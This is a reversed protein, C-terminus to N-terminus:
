SKILDLALQALESTGDALAANNAILDVGDVTNNRGHNGGSAIDDLRHNASNAAGKGVDATRM